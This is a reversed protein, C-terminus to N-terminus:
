PKSPARMKSKSGRPNRNLYFWPPKLKSSSSYEFKFLIVIKIVWGDWGMWGMRKGKM